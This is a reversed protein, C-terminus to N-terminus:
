RHSTASGGASVSGRTMLGKMRCLPRGEWRRIIASGVVILIGPSLEHVLSSWCCTTAAHIVECHYSARKVISGHAASANVSMLLCAEVSALAGAALHSPGYGVLLDRLPRSQCVAEACEKVLDDVYSRHLDVVIHPSRATAQSIFVV